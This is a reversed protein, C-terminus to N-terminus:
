ARQESSERARRARATLRELARTAAENCQKSERSIRQSVQHGEMFMECPGVVISRNGVLKTKVSLVHM